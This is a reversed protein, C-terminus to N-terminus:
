TRHPHGSHPGIPYHKTENLFEKKLPYLIHVETTPEAKEDVQQTSRRVAQVRRDPVRQMIGPAVNHEQVRATTQDDAREMVLAEGLLHSPNTQHLQLPAPLHQVQGTALDILYIGRLKDAHQKKSSANVM